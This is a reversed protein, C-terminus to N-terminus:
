QRGNKGGMEKYLSNLSAMADKANPHECCDSHIHLAINDRWKKLEKKNYLISPGNIGLKLLRVPGDLEVLAYIFEESKSKFYLQNCDVTNNLVYSEINNKKQNLTSSLHIIKSQVLLLDKWSRAKIQLPFLESQIMAKVQKFSGLKKLDDANTAQLWKM